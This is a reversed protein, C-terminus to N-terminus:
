ESDTESTSSDESTTSTNVKPADKLLPTFDFDYEHLDDDARFRLVAGVKKASESYELSTWMTASAGPRIENVDDSKSYEEVGVNIPLDDLVNGDEIIDFNIDATDVPEKSDNKVTYKISIPQKGSDLEDALYNNGDYKFSVEDVKVSVGGAQVTDGVSYTKTTDNPEDKKEYVSLKARLEKIEKSQSNITAEQDKITKTDQENSQQTGGCGALTLVGACMLLSSMIKKM